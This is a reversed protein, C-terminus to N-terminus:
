FGAVIGREKCIGLYYQYKMQVAKLEYIYSDILAPDTVCDLNQHVYDLDEKLLRITDLIDRDEQPMICKSKQLKINQVLNLGM